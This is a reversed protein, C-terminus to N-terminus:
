SNIYPKLIGMVRELAGQNGEVFAEARKGIQRRMDEQGLLERMVSLLDSEDVVRKGGGCAVLLRSMADFNFTHPGFVVPIGFSAPELLNHGGFPTLSGGVFAVDAVGYVKSLEGITDLVFVNYTEGQSPLQTKRIANFGRDRALSVVAGFRSADRPCIILSLNSFVELLKGFVNFIITEEPDHTSGAVWIPGEEVGLLELWRRRAQKELPEWQQDFKINGSVRVKGRSVGTELMRAEDLQTQMLLLGFQNVVTRVLFRWRAYAKGTRPSVRGNILIAKIGRKKLLFILGPWIDTEVLIFIGPMITNIMRKNSWWFDLPMPVLVDVTDKLKEGAVQLGTTTKVSLVVERSPYRTKLAELVPIASLVEGVSLAHVWVRGKEPMKLRPLNLALREKLRDRNEFVCFLPFGVIIALTTLFHYVGFM